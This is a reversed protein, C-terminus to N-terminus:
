ARIQGLIEHSAGIRGQVLRLSVAPVAVLREVGGHRCVDPMPQLKLRIHTASQGPMFEYEVVLRDDTEFATLNALKLRQDAPLM